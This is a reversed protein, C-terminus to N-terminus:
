FNCTTSVKFGCNLNETESKEFAVSFCGGNELTTNNCKQIFFINFKMCSGFTM